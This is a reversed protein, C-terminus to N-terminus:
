IRRTAVFRYGGLLTVTSAWRWREAALGLLRSLEDAQFGAGISVRGDHRTVYSAGGLRAGLAWLLRVRLHRLPENFILVRAHRDLTQGLAALPAAEFHHLILNGVVVPYAPWGEFERLDMTYWPAALPWGAPAPFQDLAAVRLGAARLALAVIGEGAGIELVSEGANVLPRATRVFWAPNGMIRNLRHLDRRSRSAALSGPPLSDLLEPLLRRPV